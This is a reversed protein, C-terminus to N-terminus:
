HPKRILFNTESSGRSNIGVEVYVLLIHLGDSLGFHAPRYSTFSVYKYV